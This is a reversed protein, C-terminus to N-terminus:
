PLEQLAAVLSDGECHSPPAALTQGSRVKLAITKDITAKLALAEFTSAQLLFSRVKEAYAEAEQEAANKVPAPPNLEWFAEVSRNFFRALRELAVQQKHNTRSIGETAVRRLWRYDVGIKEAAEKRSLGRNRLWSDLNAAFLKQKKEAETMDNEGKRGEPY